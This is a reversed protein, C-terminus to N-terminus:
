GAGSRKSVHKRESRGLRLVIRIESSQLSFTHPRVWVSPAKATLFILSRAEGCMKREPESTRGRYEVGMLVDRQAEVGRASPGFQVVGTPAPSVKWIRAGESPPECGGYSRMACRVFVVLSGPLSDSSLKELVSAFLHVEAKVESNRRVPTSM